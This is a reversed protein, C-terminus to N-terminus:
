DEKDYGQRSILLKQELLKNKKFADYEMKLKEKEEASATTQFAKNM